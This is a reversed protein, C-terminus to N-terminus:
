VSVFKYVDMVNLWTLTNNLIVRWQMVTLPGIDGKLMHLILLM